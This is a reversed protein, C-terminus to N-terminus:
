THLSHSDFVGVRHMPAIPAQVRPGVQPLDERHLPQSVGTYTHMTNYAHQELEDRCGCMHSAALHTHVAVQAVHLAVGEGAAGGESILLLFMARTPPHLTRVACACLAYM